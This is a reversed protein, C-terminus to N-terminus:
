NGRKKNGKRNKYIRSFIKLWVHLIATAIGLVITLKVVNFSLDILGFFDPMIAGAVFIGILCLSCILTKIKNFPICLSILNLYGCVIMSVTALTVAESPLLCDTAQLVVAVLINLLLFIGYPLSKKLVYPIFDGQILNKNPLLALFFSPIGVTFLEMLFMNKPEFIYPIQACLLILSLLIVMVTKMLFLTSSKQVNNIVRRGEEVVTPLSSFKSDLLVLHSINRAVESGDAMAISCDAEKLALTDNVGDGTMAVVNNKKLQQIIAHKQEPSVRGFVTYKDAINKVEEITMGELNIYDECRDVGVRKAITSVTAPDDGSIIKIQVSNEKFWKITEIADERITDEILVIATAVLDTPLEDKTMIKKSSAM